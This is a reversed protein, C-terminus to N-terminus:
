AIRHWSNTVQVFRVRFPGGVVLISPVGFAQSAGNLALTFATIQQTTTILVETGDPTQSNLPLTVTGSALTSVPRLLMWQQAAVPNPVAINFGTGPTFINTALTPSAFTKQFYDLLSNISVRRSDGQNPSFVPLQDGGSVVNLLPLQYIQPM